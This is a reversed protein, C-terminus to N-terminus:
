RGIGFKELIGGLGEAQNGLNQVSDVGRQIGSYAEMVDALYPQLFYYYIVVPGGLIIAWYFLRMINGYIAHRRMKHLLKNNDKTLELLEKMERDNM